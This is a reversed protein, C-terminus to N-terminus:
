STNSTRRISARSKAASPKSPVNFLMPAGVGALRAPQTDNRTRFFGDLEDFASAM